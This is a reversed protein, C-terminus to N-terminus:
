TQIIARLHEKSIPAETSFCGVIDDVDTNVTTSVTYNKCAAPRCSHYKKRFYFRSFATLKRHYIM